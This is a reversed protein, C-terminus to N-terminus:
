SLQKCENSWFYAVKKSTEKLDEQDVLSTLFKQPPKSLDQQSIYAM